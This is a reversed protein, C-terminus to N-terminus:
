RIEVSIYMFTKLQNAERVWENGQVNGEIQKNIEAYAHSQEKKKM